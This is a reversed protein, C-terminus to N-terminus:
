LIGPRPLSRIMSRSSPHHPTLGTGGDQQSLRVTFTTGKQETSEVSVGGAHAKAIENVIFLGLGINTAGSIPQDGRVLPEFVHKILDVPIPPGSNHVRLTAAAEETCSTVHVLTRPEGYAVANAVLNGIMQYLRDTDFLASREGTHRYTLVHGPFTLRLENLCGDVANPLDAVRPQVVISRGAQTLTFDLLDAVLRQARAVSHSIAGLLKPSEPGHSRRKLLDAAMSIALLPTRLDHSVIGLMQGSLVSQKPETPHMVCARSRSLLARQAKLNNALCREALLRACVLDHEYHQNEPNFLTLEHVITKSPACTIANSMLPIIFGQRHIFDLKVNAVAGLQGILPQWYLQHLTRAEMTLMQQLRMGVLAEQTYGLLSCVAANASVVQGSHLTLLLGYDSADERIHSAIDPCSCSSTATHRLLANM